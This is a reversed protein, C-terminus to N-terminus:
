DNTLVEKRVNMFEQINNQDFVFIEKKYFRERIESLVPGSSILYIQAIGRSEIAAILHTAIDAPLPNSSCWFSLINKKRRIARWKASSESVFFDFIEEGFSQISDIQYGISLIFNSIIEILEADKHTLIDTFFDFTQRSHHLEFKQATDLYNKDIQLIKRWEKLAQSILEKSLYFEALQYYMDLVEEKEILFHKNNEVIFCAKELSKIYNSYQNQFKYISAIKKEARFAYHPDNFKGIKEYYTLAKDSEGMIECIEALKLIYDPETTDLEVINSFAQYAEAYMNLSFYIYALARWAQISKANLAIVNKYVVIAKELENKKHYIDGLTSLFQPNKPELILLKELIESAELLLDKQNYWTVLRFLPTKTLEPSLNPINVLKEFIDVASKQRDTSWYIDGLIGLMKTHSPEKKLIDLLFIEASEYDEKDLLHQLQSNRNPIIIIFYILSLTILAVTSIAIFYSVNEFM